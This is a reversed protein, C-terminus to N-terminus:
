EKEFDLDLIQVSKLTQPLPPNRRLPDYEFKRCHHHEGVPGHISCLVQETLFDEGNACYACIKRIEKDFLAM